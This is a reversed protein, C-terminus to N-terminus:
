NMLKRLEEKLKKELKWRTVDLDKEATSFRSRADNVVVDIGFPNSNILGGCNACIFNSGGVSATEYGIEHLCNEPQLSDIERQLECLRKKLKRNYFMQKIRETLGM